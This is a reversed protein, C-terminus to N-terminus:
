KLYSKTEVYSGTQYKFVKVQCKMGEMTLGCFGGQLLPANEVGACSIGRYDVILDPHTSSSGPATKIARPSLSGSSGHTSLCFKKAESEIKDTLRERANEEAAVTTAVTLAFIGSLLLVRM